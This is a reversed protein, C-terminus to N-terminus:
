LAGSGIRIGAQRAGGKEPHLAAHCAQCVSMLNAPDYALDPRDELHQIHHVTTAQTIRGYRKCRQCRYGDRRLIMDRRRLWKPSHYFEYTTVAGPGEAGHAKGRLVLGCCGFALAGVTM